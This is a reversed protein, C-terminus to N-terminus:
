ASSPMRSLPIHSSNLRTSKRDLKKYLEPFKYRNFLNFLLEFTESSKAYRFSCKFLNLFIENNVFKNDKYKIIWNFLKEAHSSCIIHSLFREPSIPEKKNNIWFSLINIAGHEAAYYWAEDTINILDIDKDNDNKIHERLTSCEEDWFKKYLEPFNYRNFLNFLLEFTEFSKAYRFSCKFLNLFIENNVFKNDKYEIIWNFLKEAHSSCIIHKLFTEPCIPEKKNNIWFSLINIAGHEAAYYWAEDSRFLM